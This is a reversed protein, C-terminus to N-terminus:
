NIIGVMVLEDDIVMIKVYIFGSDYIYIKIGCKYLYNM